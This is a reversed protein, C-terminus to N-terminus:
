SRPLSALGSATPQPPSRRSTPKPMVSRKAGPSSPQLRASNSPTMRSRQTGREGALTPHLHVSLFTTQQSTPTVSTRAGSSSRAQHASLSTTRHRSLVKYRYRILVTVFPIYSIHQPTCVEPQAIPLGGVNAFLAGAAIVSVLRYQM